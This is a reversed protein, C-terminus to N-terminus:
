NVTSVGSIPHPSHSPSSLSHLTIKTDKRKERKMKERVLLNPLIFYWLVPNRIKQQTKDEHPGM